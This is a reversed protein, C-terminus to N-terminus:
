KIGDVYKIFIGAGTLAQTIRTLRMGLVRIMVYRYHGGWTFQYNWLLVPTM